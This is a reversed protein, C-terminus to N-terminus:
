SDVSYSLSYSNKAAYRSTAPTDMKVLRTFVGSFQYRPDQDPGILHDLNGAYTLKDLNILSELEKRELLKRVLTSGIFGAGGTVLISKLSRMFESDLPKRITSIFGKRFTGM